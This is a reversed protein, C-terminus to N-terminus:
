FKRFTNHVQYSSLLSLWEKSPTAVLLHGLWHMAQAVRSCGYNSIPTILLPFFSSPMTPLDVTHYDSPLLPSHFHVFYMSNHVKGMFIPLKWKEKKKKKTAGDISLFYAGGRATVRVNAQPSVVQNEAAARGGGRGRWCGCAGHSARRGLRQRGGRVTAVADIGLHTKRVGQATGTIGGSLHRLNRRM